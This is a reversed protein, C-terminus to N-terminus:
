DNPRQNSDLEPLWEKIEENIRALAEAPLDAQTIPRGVVLYSSGAEMADRPTVIRVQDDRAATAPRIGPTVLSFSEGHQSRLAAAEQASCVVGDMGSDAALAALRQVCAVPSLDWGIEALDAQSLSTLATVAILLPPNSLRTLRERCTEMMRRGGSAHVNVMWVGMAAAARVAQATTNPIDHFKLDLFVEFGQNQLKEVVAPGFRTFLEKGVKVRCASPSLQSVLGELSAMDDFDLAVIVRPGTVSNNMQTM